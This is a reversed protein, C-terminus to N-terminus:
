LGHVGGAAAVALTVTTLGAVASSAAAPKWQSVQQLARADLRHSRALIERDATRIAPSLPHLRTRGVACALMANLQQNTLPDTDGVNYIGSPAQLSAAVARSAEDLHITPLYAGDPGDLLLWGRRALTMLQQTWRDDPGYPHALRLVTAAGGRAVHESAIREGDAAARTAQSPAVPSNESIWDDGGDAYVAASSRQILRISPEARLATAVSALLMSRRRRAGARVYYGVASRPEDVVPALNCVVEHERVAAVIAAADHAVVVRVLNEYWLRRERPSTAVVTVRQGSAVLLSAVRRTLPYAAGLVAIGRADDGHKVARALRM